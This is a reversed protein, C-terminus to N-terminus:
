MQDTPATTSAALVGCTAGCLDIRYNRQPVFLATVRHEDIIGHGFEKHRWKGKLFQPFSWRM